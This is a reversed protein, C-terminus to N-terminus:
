FSIRIISRETVSVVPHLPQRKNQFPETIKQVERILSTQQIRTRTMERDAFLPALVQESAAFGVLLLVLSLLGLILASGNRQRDHEEASSVILGLACFLMCFTSTGDPVQGFVFAMCFPVALILVVLYKGIETSFCALFMCYLLFALVLVAYTVESSGVAASGVDQVSFGSLFVAGIGAFGDRIGESYRWTLMGAAVATILFFLIQRKKQMYLIGFWIGLLLVAMDLVERECAPDFIGLATGIWGYVGLIMYGVPIWALFWGRISKRDTEPVSAQLHLGTSKKKKKM